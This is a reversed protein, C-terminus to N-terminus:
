RAPLDAPQLIQVSGNSSLLAAAAIGLSAGILLRLLPLNGHLGFIEAAVDLGNLALALGFCRIALRRDLRLLSGIAAGSYIGLCRVCVATPTGFSVLSRATHQHCVKSFFAFIALAAVGDGHARLWAPALALLLLTAATFFTINRTTPM